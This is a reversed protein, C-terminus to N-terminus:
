PKPNIRVGAKLAFQFPSGKVHGGNVRVELRTEQVPTGKKVEYRCEYTGDGRDTVCVDKGVDVPADEDQGGLPGM